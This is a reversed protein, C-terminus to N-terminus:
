ASDVNWTPKAQRHSMTFIIKLIFSLVECRGVMIIKLYFHDLRTIEEDFSPFALAKMKVDVYIFTQFEQM